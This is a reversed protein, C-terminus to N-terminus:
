MSRNVPIEFGRDPVVPEPPQPVLPVLPPPLYHIVLIYLDDLILAEKTFRKLPNLLNSPHAFLLSHYAVYRPDRESNEDEALPLRHFEPDSLYGFWMRKRQEYLADITIKWATAPV